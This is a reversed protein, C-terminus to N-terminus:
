INREYYVAAPFAPNAQGIPRWDKEDWEPFYTDGTINEGEVHTIIMEDAIPLALEYIQAGGIIFANEECRRRCLDLASDLSHTLSLDTRSDQSPSPVISMPYNPNRSIVINRRGALPKGISEFTKRGMIVAHGITARRFFKLDDPLYWPLRGGRGIVRDQTMAVIIITKM